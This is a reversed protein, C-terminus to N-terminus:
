QSTRSLRTMLHLGQDNGLHLLIGLPALKDKPLAQSGKVLIILQEFEGVAFDSM